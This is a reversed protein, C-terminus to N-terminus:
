DKFLIEILKPRLYQKFFNEFDKDTFSVKYSGDKPAIQFGAKVSPDTQIELGSNLLEKVSKSFYDSLEKEDAPPLIVKLESTQKSSWNKLTTEIIRKIFDTDFSKETAKTVVTSNISDTIQQKLANLAQKSSLKIESKTNKQIEAAKKRADAIIKEAETKAENIISVSENKAKDVIAKAEANGKELGEQYIKETLEQLKSQM